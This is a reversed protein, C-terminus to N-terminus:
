FNGLIKLDLGSHSYNHSIRMVSLLWAIFGCDIRLKLLCLNIYTPFIKRAMCLFLFSCVTFLQRFIEAWYSQFLSHHSNGSFPLSFFYSTWQVHGFKPLKQCGQDINRLLLVVFLSTFPLAPWFGPTADAPWTVADARWSPFLQHLSPDGSPIGGSAPQRM